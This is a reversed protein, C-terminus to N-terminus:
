LFDRSLAANEEHAIHLSLREQQTLVFNFPKGLRSMFVLRRCSFVSRSAWACGGPPFPPLAKVRGPCRRGTPCGGAVDRAGPSGTRGEAAGAVAQERRRDQQRSEAGRAGPARPDCAPRLLPPGHAQHCRSLRQGAVRWGSLVTLRDPPWAEQGAPLKGPAAGHALFPSAPCLACGRVASLPCRGPGGGPRHAGSGARGGRTTMRRTPLGQPHARGRPGGIERVVPWVPCGAPGGM